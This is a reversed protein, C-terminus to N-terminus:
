SVYIKKDKTLNYMKKETQRFLMIAYNINRRGIKSIINVIEM